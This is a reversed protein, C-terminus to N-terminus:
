LVTIGQKSCFYCNRTDHCPANVWGQSLVGSIRYRLRVCDLNSNSSLPYNQNLTGWKRYNSTSGDIWVFADGDTGAEDDIDNLGIHCTFTTDLNHNSYLLLSDEVASTITALNGGWNICQTQADAQNINPSTQFFTFDTGNYTFSVESIVTQAKSIYIFM